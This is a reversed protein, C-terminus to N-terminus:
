PELRKRHIWTKAALAALFVWLAIRLKGDFQFGAALAILAYCAMAAYFRTKM